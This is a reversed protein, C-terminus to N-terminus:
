KASNRYETPTLGAEKKFFRCFWYLNNFGSLNAVDNLSYETQLLFEKARELKLNNIYKVPSIGYCNKFIRRFYTENIGCIKSLYPINIEKEFYFNHIYDTAPLIMRRKSSFCYDLNYEHIMESIISYLKAMCSIMYGNKKERFDKEASILLSVTKVHNKIHMVFPEAPIEKSILFNIALCDGPSLNEVTYDSNKPLFIIDNKKVTFSKKGDFIYKKEGGLNIALGHSPRNNHILDGCGAPVKCALVVDTVRFDYEFFNMEIVRVM